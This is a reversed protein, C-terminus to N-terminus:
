HYHGVERETYGEPLGEVPPPDRREARLAVLVALFLLDLVFVGLMVPGLLIVLHGVAAVEHDVVVGLAGTILLLLFAFVSILKGLRLLGLLGEYRTPFVALLVCGAAVLLNGSGAFLLWPYLWPGPGATTELLFGTLLLVLFFRVVEWLSGALLLARRPAGRIERPPGGSITRAKM